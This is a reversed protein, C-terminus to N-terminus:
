RCPAVELVHDSLKYFHKISIATSDHFHLPDPVVEVPELEPIRVVKLGTLSNRIFFSPYKRTM